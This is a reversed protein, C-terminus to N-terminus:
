FISHLSQNYTDTVFLSGDYFSRMQDLVEDVQAHPLSCEDVVQEVMSRVETETFGCLDNLRMDWTLDQFTNSGSTVDNLVVPAVGTVFVRDLGDGSAFSKINKFFTKFIGEGKVFDMYRQQNSGQTGMMIENAFNDYEDIFLYLKHGSVDVASMLSECSSLADNPNVHIEVNLRERNFTIFREIRSNIHRGLAQRIQEVSGIAPIKSFDWRMVLYQNHLPTPNQGIALTGFLRQFDDAKTVDYYAMLSSLLLSKGFRRPRLFLIQDGWEELFPIHHTRDIYVDNRTRIKDFESVAYPFKMM